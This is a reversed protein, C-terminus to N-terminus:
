LICNAKKGSSKIHVDCAEIIHQPEQCAMRPDKSFLIYTSTVDFRFAGCGLCVACEGNRCFCFYGHEFIM